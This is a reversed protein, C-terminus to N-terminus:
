SSKLAAEVSQILQELFEDHARGSAIGQQIWRVGEGRVYFVKLLGFRRYVQWQSQRDVPILSEAPLQSRSAYADREQASLDAPLLVKVTFSEADFMRQAQAWVQAEIGFIACDMSPDAFVFLTALSQDEVLYADIWDAFAESDIRPTGGALWLPETPRSLYIRLGYVLLGFLVCVALFLSPRLGAIRM